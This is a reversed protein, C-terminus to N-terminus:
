NDRSGMIKDKMIGKYLDIKPMLKEYKPDNRMDEYLAPYQIFDHIWRIMFYLIYFLNVGCFTNLRQCKNVGKIEVKGSHCIIIFEGVNFPM